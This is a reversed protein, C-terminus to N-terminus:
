NWLKYSWRFRKKKNDLYVFNNNKMSIERIKSLTNDSSYDNILIIEYEIDNLERTFYKEIKDLNEYEDRLPILISLM